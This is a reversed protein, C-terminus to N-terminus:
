AGFFAVLGVADEGSQETGSARLADVSRAFGGTEGTAIHLADSSWRRQGLVLELSRPLTDVAPTHAALSARGIARVTEPRANDATWFLDLARQQSPHLDGAPHRRRRAGSVSRRRRRRRRAGSVPKALGDHTLAHGPEV